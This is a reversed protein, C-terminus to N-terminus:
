GPVADGPMRIKIFEQTGLQLFPAQMETVYWKAYDHRKEPCYADIILRMTHLAFTISIQTISQAEKPLRLQVVAARGSVSRVLNGQVVDVGHTSKSWYKYFFQYMSQYGLADALRELNQPGGYLSYWNPNSNKNKSKIRRFEALAAKPGPTQLFAETRAISEKVMEQPIEASFGPAITDKALKQELTKREPSSLDLARVQKLRQYAEVALFAFGRRVSDERLIYALGLTSELAARLLVKCPDIYSSKVCSSVAGLLELIHRFSFTVPAVEDAGKATQMHWTLVHTGFSVAEDVLAGFQHLNSKVGPEIEPLMEKIPSTPM